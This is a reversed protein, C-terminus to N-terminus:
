KKIEPYYHHVEGETAIKNKIDDCPINIMQEMYETKDFEILFCGEDGEVLLVKSNWHAEKVQCVFIKYGDRSGKTLANSNYPDSCSEEYQISFGHSIIISDNTCSTILGLFLILNIRKLIKIITKM